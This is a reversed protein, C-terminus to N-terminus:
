WEGSALLERVQDTRIHAWPVPSAPALSATWPIVGILVPEHPARRRMMGGPDVHDLVAITLAGVGPAGGAEVLAASCAPCTHGSTWGRLGPSSSQSTSLRLPSWTTAKAYFPVTIESAGCMVCGSTPCPVTVPDERRAVMWEVAQRQAEARLDADVHMWPESAATDKRAGRQMVPAFRSAWRCAAGIPGLLEIMAGLQRDNFRDPADAELPRGVVALADLAIAVRHVGISRQGIRERLRPHTDVIRAALARRGECAQCLGLSISPLRVPLPWGREDVPVPPVPEGARHMIAHETVSGADFATVVGCSACAIQGEPLPVIGLERLHDTTPTSM